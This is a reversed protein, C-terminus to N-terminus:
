EEFPKLGNIFAYMDNAVFALRTVGSEWDHNYVYTFDCDIDFSFKQISKVRRNAAASV